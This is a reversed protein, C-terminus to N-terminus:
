KENIWYIFKTASYLLVGKKKKGKKKKRKGGQETLIYTHIHIQRYTINLHVSYMVYMYKVVEYDHTHLVVGYPPYMCYM